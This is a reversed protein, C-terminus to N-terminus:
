VITRTEQVKRLRQDYFYNISGASDVVQSLTGITGADYTFQIDPSNPYDILEKRNLPDYTISTTVGRADTQSTLNGVKDYGYLWTGMDPDVMRSKRGLSDYEITTINGSHDTIKTLEGLPSYLYNTTYSSGGNNEVVQKLRQSADFTYTKTHENEDTETVKWHDFVRSIQTDDLNTILIPRGM